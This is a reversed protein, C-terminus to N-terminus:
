IRASVCCSRSRSSNDGHDDKSFIFNVMCSSTSRNFARIELCLRIAGTALTCIPNSDISRRSAALCAVLSSLTQNTCHNPFIHKPTETASASLSAPRQRTARLPTFMLVFVPGCIIMFFRYGTEDNCTALASTNRRRGCQPLFQRLCIWIQRSVRQCAGQGAYVVAGLAAALSTHPRMCLGTM